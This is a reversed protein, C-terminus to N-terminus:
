IKDDFSPPPPPLGAQVKENPRTILYLAIGNVIFSLLMATGEIVLVMSSGPSVDFNTAVFGIIMLGLFHIGVIVLGTALAWAPGNRGNARAKKYVSLILAISFLFPLLFLM